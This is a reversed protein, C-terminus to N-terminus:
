VSSSVLRKSMFGFKTSRSKSIFTAQDNLAALLKVLEETVRTLARRQAQIELLSEITALAKMYTNDGQRLQIANIRVTVNALLTDLATRFRKSDPAPGDNWQKISAEYAEATARCDNESEPVLPHLVRLNASLASHATAVLRTANDLDDKASAYTALALKHQSIHNRIGEM